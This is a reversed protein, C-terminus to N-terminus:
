DTKEIRLTVEYDETEIEKGLEPYPTVDILQIEYGMVTDKLNHYTSLVITEILPTEFAITVEAEGQWICVAGIPCRSDNIESISFKLLRDVSNYTEYIEFSNEIGIDFLYNEENKKCLVFILLILLFVLLKQGM